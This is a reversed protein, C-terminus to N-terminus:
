ADGAALASRVSAAAHRLAPDASEEALALTMGAYDPDNQMREVHVHQGTHSMLWKLQVIEVVALGHEPHPKANM